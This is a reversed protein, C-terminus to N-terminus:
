MKELYINYEYLLKVGSTAEANVMNIRSTITHHEEINDYTAINHFVM